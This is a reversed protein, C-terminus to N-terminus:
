SQEENIPEPTMVQEIPMISQESGQQQEPVPPFGRKGLQPASFSKLQATDIADTSGGAESEERDNTDATGSEETTGDHGDPKTYVSRRKPDAREFWGGREWHGPSYLSKERVPVNVIGNMLENLRPFSIPKLIWADFGANVYTQREKEVLSASVAIIPVRGNLAARPSLGSTPNTKEFSRMMKTATLGDVIPM